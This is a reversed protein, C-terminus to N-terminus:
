KGNKVYTIVKQGEKLGSKVEVMGEDGELGTTIEVKEIKNELGLIQVMKQKKANTEIARLPIMLVNQAEATKVDIDASMGPKFKGDLSLLKLKIKYYVVDQIVTAAPDIEYIEAEFKDGQGFADLDIIAKQGIAIKIIDSEPVKSEVILQKSSSVIAIPAGAMVVEGAEYDSKIVVGSIPSYIVANNLRVEAAEVSKKAKAIIAEQAKRQNKSYTADNDKMHKLTKEQYILDDRAQDLSIQLSSDDVRAIKDGASVVDGSEAYVAVLKGGVEFSVNTQSDPNITGTVSVTQSLNGKSVDATVYETKPKKSQLYFYGGLIIALIIIIWIILKKRKLM